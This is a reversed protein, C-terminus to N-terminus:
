DRVRAVTDLVVRAVLAPDDNMPVHGCGPLRVLDAHPMLRAARPGQRPLLLRDRAGWAV